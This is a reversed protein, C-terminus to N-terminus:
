QWSQFAQYNEYNVTGHFERRYDKFLEEIIGVGHSVVIDFPTMELVDVSFQFVDCLIDESLRFLFTILDNGGKAGDLAQLHPEFPLGHEPHIHFHDLIHIVVCGHCGLLLVIVEQEPYGSESTFLSQLSQLFLRLFTCELPNNGQGEIM